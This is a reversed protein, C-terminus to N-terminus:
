RQEEIVVTINNTGEKVYAVVRWGKEYIEKVTVKGLYECTLSQPTGYCTGGKVPTAGQANAFCFTAMLMAVFFSNKLMVYRGTRPKRDVHGTVAQMLM